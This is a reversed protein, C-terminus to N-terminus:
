QTIQVRYARGPSLTAGGVHVLNTLHLVPSTDTLVNGVPVFSLAGLGAGLPTSLLQYKNGGIAPFSVRVDGNALVTPSLRFVSHPDHPDTGAVLEQWDPVGDGDSDLPPPFICGGYVPYVIVNFPVTIQHGLNDTATVTVVNTGVPFLSGSPTSYSFSTYSLGCDAPTAADPYYVQIPPAPSTVVGDCTRDGYSGRFVDPPALGPLVTVKFQTQDSSGGAFNVTCTVTHDGASLLTGLPPDFVVSSVAGCYPSIVPDPYHAFAWCQGPPAVLTTDPVFTYCPDFQLDFSYTSSASTGGFTGVSAVAHFVFNGGVLGSINTSGADQIDVLAGSRYDSLVFQPKGHAPDGGVRTCQATLGFRMLSVATGLIYFDSVGAAYNNSSAPSTQVQVAGTGYYHLGQIHTDQVISSTQGFLSGDVNTMFDGYIEEAYRSYINTQPSCSNCSLNAEILSVNSVDSLQAWAPFAGLGLGVALWVAPRLWGSWAKSLCGLQLQDDRKNRM